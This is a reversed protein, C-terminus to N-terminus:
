DRTVVQIARDLSEIFAELRGPGELSALRISPWRDIADSSIPFGAETFWSAVQARMQDDDFPPRRKMYGFPVQVYGTTYVILFSHDIGDRDLVPSFTGEVSGAGWTIRTSNAKGWELLRRAADAQVSGHRKTLDEFFRDETWV